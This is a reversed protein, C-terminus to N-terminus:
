RIIKAVTQIQQTDTIPIVFDDLSESGMKAEDCIHNMKSPRTTKGSLHVENVGTLEIISAVNDANVGAGAMIQIRHDSQEVMAKITNVGTLANPALGSTLIRECGLAIVQELAAVVNNCQDIARHFTVGLGHQHAVNVIRKTTSIDIDGNETLAGFVIGQLGSSAAAKVDEIMTAVDDESYLFDGQRARIMAYVPISAKEGALKMLGLSPTLGGLALSSCLEIRTAGGAIANHLSEMNDICVEIHHM